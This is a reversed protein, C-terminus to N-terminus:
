DGSGLAPDNPDILDSTLVEVDTNEGAKVSFPRQFVREKNRASIVYNGEELVMSPFASVINDRVLDGQDTTIVWATDAIAEGGPERVLKMTLQAAHHQLTADTIRGPEVRLDARVTANVSGYNSVVHYDGANLRTVVGAKVDSAILRRDADDTAASYIDFRLADSRIPRKSAATANLRLGGAELAVTERTQEGSFDIRRTMGARGFGLHLLYSGAPVDFVAEGGRAVAVLPLKGDPGPLPAFLRWILQDPIRPGGDGLTANLVLSKPPRGINLRPETPQPAYAPLAPLDLKPAPLDGQRQPLAIPELRKLPDIKPIGIDSAAPDKPIASPSAYAGPVQDDPGGAGRSGGGSPGGQALVPAVALMVVVVSLELVRRTRKGTAQRGQKM